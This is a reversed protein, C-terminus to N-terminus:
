RRQIVIMGSRRGRRDPTKVRGRSWRDAACATAAVLAHDRFLRGRVQDPTPVPKRFRDHELLLGLDEISITGGKGAANAARSAAHVTPRLNIRGGNQELANAGPVGNSHIASPL